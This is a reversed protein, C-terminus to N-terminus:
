IDKMIQLIGKKDRGSFIGDAFDALGDLHIGRTVLVSFILAFLGAGEPWREHTLANLCYGIGYVGFGLALGIVAFWSLSAAFDEADKGPM